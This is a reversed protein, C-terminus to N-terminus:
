LRAKARARAVIVVIGSKSSGIGLESPRILCQV